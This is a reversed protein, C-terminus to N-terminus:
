YPFYTRQYPDSTGGGKYSFGVKSGPHSKSKEDVFPVVDWYFETLMKLLASKRTEIKEFVWIQEKKTDM